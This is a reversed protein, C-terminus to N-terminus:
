VGIVKRKENKGRKMENMGDIMGDKGRGNM